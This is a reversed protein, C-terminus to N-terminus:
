QKLLEIRTGTSMGNWPKWLASFVWGTVNILAVLPLAVPALLVLKWAESDRHPGVLALCALLAAAEIATGSAKAELVVFGNALASREWGHLTWRQYDHPADHVPYLFPMSLSARGGPRLVRAVESLLAEPDRVHEIVELCIVLDISGDKVPLRTADAFVHPTAGYLDQGTAPYDLSVYRSGPPVAAEVWRDGAGIDLVIGNAERLSQPLHRRGLLWQPHFPTRALLGLVARLRSM